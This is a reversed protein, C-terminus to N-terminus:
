KTYVPYTASRTDTAFNIDAFATQDRFAALGVQIAAATAEGTAFWTGNAFSITTPSRVQGDETILYVRRGHTTKSMLLAASLGINRLMTTIWPAAMQPEAPLATGEAVNSGADVFLPLGGVFSYGNSTRTTDGQTGAALAGTVLSINTAGLSGTRQGSLYELTAYEGVNDQDADQYGGAQWSIQAPTIGSKLTAAAAAENATIRSELLNPIAIAAIIAIIAIVIMLEILTFAQRM